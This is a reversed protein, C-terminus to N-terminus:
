PRVVLVPNPITNLLTVIAEREFLRNASPIVVLGGDERQILVALRHLGPRTLRYIWITSDDLNFQQAIDAKM